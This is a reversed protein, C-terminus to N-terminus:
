RPLTRLFERAIWEAFLQNPERGFHCEDHYPPAPLADFVPAADVFSEGEAVLRQAAERLLPYGLQVGQMHSNGAAHKALDEASPARGRLDMPNPQLVHLYHVGRADCMGRLSRSSEEWVRAAIKLAGVRDSEVFPPGHLVNKTGLQEMRETYAEFARRASAAHTSLKRLVLTGALASAHANWALASNSLSITARQARRGEAALDLAERDSAAGSTLAAWHTIAPLIPHSGRWVNDIALATDNFGDINIVADYEIGLAFLYALMTVQQPQKYGGRAFNSVRVKRGALRPDKALEEALRESAYVAFMTAVSGGLVVVDFASANEPNRMARLDGELMGQGALLEWGVYPHLVPTSGGGEDPPAPADVDIRPVEDWAASRALLIADRAVDSDYASGRLRLVLRTGLEGLALGAVLTVLVTVLARRRRPRAPAPRQDM